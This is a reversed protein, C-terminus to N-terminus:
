NKSPFESFSAEIDYSNQECEAPCMISCIRSDFIYAQNDTLEQLTKCTNVQYINKLFLQYCGTGYYSLMQQCYNICNYRDYTINFQRMKQVIETDITNTHQCNSYPAPLNAFHTLALNMSVSSGPKFSQISKWIPTHGQDSVCMNISDYWSESMYDYFEGPVGHFLELYLGSNPNEV